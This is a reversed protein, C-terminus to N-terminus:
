DTLGFSKSKLRFTGEVINESQSGRVGIRSIVMEYHTSFNLLGRVLRVYPQSVWVHRFTPEGVLRKM